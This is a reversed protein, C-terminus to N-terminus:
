ATIRTIDKTVTIIGRAITITSNTKTAQIDFLYQGEMAATTAAPLQLVVVGTSFASPASDAITIDFAATSSDESKRAQARVTYTSLDFAAGASNKVNFTFAETDGRFVNLEINDFKTTTM